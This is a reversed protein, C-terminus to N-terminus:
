YSPGTATPPFWSLDLRRIRLNGQHATGRRNLSYGLLAADDVFQIAIYHYNFEPDAELATGILRNFPVPMIIRGARTQIARDNNTGIYGPAARFRCSELFCPCDINSSETKNM